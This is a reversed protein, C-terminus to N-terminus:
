RDGPGIPRRERFGGIASEELSLFDEPRLPGRLVDNPAYIAHHRGRSSKPVGLPPRWPERHHHPLDVPWARPRGAQHYFFPHFLRDQVEPPMGPGTDSVAVEVGGETLSTSLRITGGGPMADVANQLLNLVVQQLETRDALVIPDTEALQEDFAVSQFSAQRDFLSVSEAILDNIPLPTRHHPRRRVFSRIKQIIAAAREAQSAVASAGIRLLAPDPDPDDLMRMMGHGYNLISALPQNLEHAINSAMEGVIGLRSFQDREARQREVEARNRKFVFMAKAMEGIEDRRGAAPVVVNVDGDALRHMAETMAILPRSITRAVLWAVALGFVLVIAGIVLARTQARAYQAQYDSADISIEVVAAATGSYNDMAGILAAVPRGDRRGRLITTKGNLAATKVEDGALLRGTTAAVTRFGGGQPLHVAVDAGFRAKFQDAFQQGFDLGFEVSGLTRGGEVIPAVARAGLGAVGFELGRATHGSRNAEVVMQRFSALDDGFLDPQHLRLLSTAPPRHFQFQEVGAEQKLIAFAQTFRALLRGRDGAAVDTKVDPLAAVLDALALATNTRLRATAEVAEFYGHLEREEARAVTESVGDLMVPVLIAVTAVLLAAFWFTLRAKIRMAAVSKVM